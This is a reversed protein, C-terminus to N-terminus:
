QGNLLMKLLCNFYCATQCVILEIIYYISNIVPYVKRDFYNDGTILEIIVM